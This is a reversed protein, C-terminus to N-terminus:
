VWLLELKGRQAFGYESLRLCIRESKGYHIWDFYKTSSNDMLGLTNVTRQSYCRAKHVEPHSFWVHGAAICWLPSPGHFVISKLGDIPLKTYKWGRRTTLYHTLYGDQCGKCPYKPNLTFNGFFINETQLRQRSFFVGALDVRGVVPRTQTAFGLLNIELMSELGVCMQDWQRTLQRRQYDQDMFNRSDIPILIMDPPPGSTAHLTADNNCGVAGTGARRVREVIESGYINDANTASLWQCDARGLITRLAADTATYGADEKTFQTRYRRHIHLFSLRDDKYSALIAKLRSTFPMSDTIFFFAEWHDDTQRQLSTILNDLGTFVDKKLLSTNRQADNLSSTRVLLCVKGASRRRTLAHQTIATQQRFMELDYQKFLDFHSGTRLTEPVELQVNHIDKSIRLLEDRMRAKAEDCIFGNRRLMEGGWKHLVVEESTVDCWRSPNDITYEVAFPMPNICQGTFYDQGLRHHYLLTSVNHTRQLFETLGVEYFRILAPWNAFVKFQDYENLIIPLVTSRLGFFHTQVHPAVECSMTAGVMAVNNAFLLQHFPRLWQGKSRYVMPGRVGNNLFFVSGFSKTLPGLLLSVTRLHLFMDSPTVAWINEAANAASTSLLPLLMNEGGNLVNFLYFTASNEAPDLQMASQFIMLNNRQVEMSDLLDSQGGIHFVIFTRNVLPVRREDMRNIFAALKAQMQTYEPEQPVTRPLLRGEHQGFELYHRRAKAETNINNLPLDINLQCYAKWDFNQLVPSIRVDEDSLRTALCIVILLLASIIRYIPGNMEFKIPRSFCSFCRQVHKETKGGSSTNNLLKCEDRELAEGLVLAGSCVVCIASNIFNNCYCCM